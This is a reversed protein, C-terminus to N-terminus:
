PTRYMGSGKNKASSRKPTDDIMHHRLLRARKLAAGRSVGFRRRAESVTRCKTFTNRPMLLAAAFYNAQWEPDVHCDRSRTRYHFVPRQTHMLLHGIEHAVTMRARADGKKLKAYTSASITIKPQHWDTCGEAGNMDVDNGIEYFAGDVMSDLFFELVPQMAIRGGPQLNLETALERRVMSALGEIQRESRRMVSGVQEAM